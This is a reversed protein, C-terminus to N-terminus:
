KFQWGEFTWEFDYICVHTKKLENKLFDRKEISWEGYNHFQIQINKCKKIEGSTILRDLLEYEGGEINMKLLDIKEISHAKIFEVVDRIKGIERDSHSNETFISTAIDSAYFEVDHNGSGLGFEFVQINKNNKFRIQLKYIFSEVIEFIYIRPNVGKYMRSMRNTWDGNHGGCDFIVPNPEFIFRHRYDMSKNKKLYDRAILAAPDKLIYAAYYQKLKDITKIIIEKM